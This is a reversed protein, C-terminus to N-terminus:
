QNFIQNYVTQNVLKADILHQFYTAKDQKSQMGDLKQKIYQARAGNTIGLTKLMTDEKTIQEQANKAATAVRKAMDPDSQSLADFKAVAADKGGTQSLQQMQQYIQAAQANKQKSVAQQNKLMESLAATESNSKQVGAFAAPGFAAGQLFNPFTPAITTKVKGSADTVQGTRVANIGELTKQAQVGGGIPSAFDVALDEASKGINQGTALDTIPKTLAQAAPIQGGSLLSTFPLEKSLDTGVLGLKSELSQGNGEDNLGALTLGMDIPDLGKGSGKIAHMTQNFLYSYVMFKGLATAIKKPDNGTWKPLDHTLVHLNDNVEIQFQTIMGLTKTNMLNPLNGVSRDGIVRTAYDDAANMAQKPNLGKQLGENFKASVAFRSISEDAWRFPTALAASAKQTTTKEIENQGFRRTLFASTQGGVQKGDALFPARLTDLLGTVASKTDTTALTYVIPITHTVAASINGGIVNAGFRRTIARMSQLVPRGLVSEIARDLRAQKGSVMNTWDNLNAAFNPLKIGLQNGQAADRLYSEILRGRQVSDTHFIARSTSDLYNDMGKMGSDTFTSGLRRMAASAWPTQSKFYETIGSIATPLQSDTFNFGFNQIFSSTDLFHRFYDPRKPVAKLGASRREGNWLDLLNDYKDKLLNSAKIVNDANPTAKRLDDESIRQEGYQQILQDDKSGPKIGFGRFADQLEGRLNTVFQVRATENARVHKVLFDNITKAVPKPFIKEVNREMTDTSLRIAAKDNGKTWDIEPAQLGGKNIPPEVGGNHETIEPDAYQVHPRDEMSPVRDIIQKVSQTEPKEAQVGEGVSTSVEKTGGRGETSTQETRGRDAESNRGSITEFEKQTITGEDLAKKTEQGVREHLNNYDFKPINDVSVEHAGAPGKTNAVHRIEINEEGYKKQANEAAKVNDPVSVHRPIHETEAVIRGESKVRKLVSKWSEVPDRHTFVVLAKYGNDIASKFKEDSSDAQLNSDYVISYNKPDIGATKLGSTKGVGTAGGTFLITDDGTGKQSALLEKWYKDTFDGAAPHYAPSAESIHGPIVHKASDKSIVNPTGFEKTVHDIYDKKMQDYNNKVYSKAEETTFPISKDYSHGETDTQSTESSQNAQPTEGTRQPSPEQTHPQEGQSADASATQSTREADLTSEDRNGYVDTATTGKEAIKAIGVVGKLADLGGKVEEATNAAAFKPAFIKAIDEPVNMNTLIKMAGSESTEKLLASAASKEEASGPYLNLAENGLVGGMAMSLSTKDGTLGYKQAFPSQKIQDQMDMVQQELSTVPQDGFLAKYITNQVPHQAADPADMETPANGGTKQNSAFNLTPAITALSRTISHIIDTGVKVGAENLGLVTNAAEGEPTANVSENNLAKGIDGTFLDKIKQVTDPNSTDSQQGFIDNYLGKAKDSLEKPVNQGIDKIKSLVDDLKSAKAVEGDTFPAPLGKAKAEANQAQFLSMTGNAVDASLTGENAGAAQNEATPIPKLNSDENSGGLALAMRHDLQQQSTARMQTRVAQSASEPMRPNEFESRPTPQAITPDTEPAVRTTDTTTADAGATRYAFLPRGSFPDKQDSIGMFTGTKSNTGQFAPTPASQGSGEQPQTATKGSLFDDLPSTAPAPPTPSPGSLFSDLPSPASTPM